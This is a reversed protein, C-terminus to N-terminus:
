ATRFCGEGVRMRGRGGVPAELPLPLNFPCERMDAAGNGDDLRVACTRCDSGHAEGERRRRGLRVGEEQGVALGVLAVVDVGPFMDVQDADDRGLRVGPRARHREAPAVGREVGAEEEGLADNEGVVVLDLIQLGVRVLIDREGFEREGTELGAEHLCVGVAAAGEQGSGAGVVPVVDIGCADEAAIASARDVLDEIEGRRVGFDPNVADLSAGEGRLPVVGVIHVVADVRKTDTGCRPVVAVNKM